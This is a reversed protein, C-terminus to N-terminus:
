LFNRTRKQPVFGLFSFQNGVIGAISFGGSGSFGRFPRLRLESPGPKCAVLLVGPDSIGPTGADSVLAVKSGAELDSLVEQHTKESAHADYRKM